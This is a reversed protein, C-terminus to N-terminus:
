PLALLQKAGGSYYERLLFELWLSEHIWGVGKVREEFGEPLELRRAIECIYSCYMDFSSICHYIYSEVNPFSSVDQVNYSMLADHVIVVRRAKSSIDRLFSAIPERLLMCANFLTPSKSSAFDPTSPLDHFHIKAIDSPNLANARVRAKHNYAALGVYYVRLSYSSILCTFQLLQNLHGQAPVPVMIVVVEDQKLSCNLEHNALNETNIDM